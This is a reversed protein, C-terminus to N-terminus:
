RKQLELIDFRSERFPLPFEIRFRGDGVKVLRGVVDQEPDDKYNRPEEYDYHGAGYFILSRESDDIFHGTLRQSGTLKELRYGIDDEGIRCRFWDYIVLPLLDGGVKAVRCRYDGRIDVGLIAQEQGALIQDLVQVEAPSGQDHAQKVADARAKQFQALRGVDTPTLIATLEGEALAPSLFGITLLLVALSRHL